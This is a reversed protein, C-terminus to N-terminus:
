LLVIVTFTLLILMAVYPSFILKFKLTYPNFGVGVIMSTCMAWILLSAKLLSFGGILQAYETPEWMLLGVHLFGLAM